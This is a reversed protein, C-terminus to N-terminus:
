RRPEVAQGAADTEIPETIIPLTFVFCAGPLHCGDTVWIEGGHAETARKCYTLGIGTHKYKGRRKDQDQGQAFKNFIVSRQDIPVGDGDDSVRVIVMRQDDSRRVEVHVQSRSYEIGNSVLNIVIRQVKEGDIYMDPINPEIDLDININIDNAMYILDDCAKNVLEEISHAKDLTLTMQEREVDLLTNILNLLRNSGNYALGLVEPLYNTVDEEGVLDQAFRLGAIVSGLPSRLDHVLMLIIEDRYRALENEETVDRFVVLNGSIQRQSGRVVLRTQEVYLTKEGRELKLQKREIVDERNVPNKAREMMGLPMQNGSLVELQAPVDSFPRNMYPKLDIGLLTEASSNFDIIEDQRNLLVMGDQTSDLITRMRNSASQIKENLLANELHGAAQDALLDLAELDRKAFQHDRHFALLIVQRIHRGRVIPVVLKTQNTENITLVERKEVAQMAMDYKIQPPVLTTMQGGSAAPDRWPSAIMALRKRSTNVEFIVANVANLMQIATNLVESAVTFRDPSSVVKLSLQRLHTLTEVQYQREEVYRANALSIVVHAALNQLFNAEEETFYGRQQNEVGIVGFTQYDEVLPVALVSPYRGFLPTKMTDSSLGYAASLVVQQSEMVEAIYGTLETVVKDERELGEQLGNQRILRYKGNPTQQVLVVTDAGTVRLTTELINNIISEIDLSSSVQQVLSEIYSLEELRRVLAERTANYMQSNQIQAATLNAATEMFQWERDTFERHTKSGLLIMGFVAENASMPAVVLTEENNKMMMQRTGTSLSPTNLHITVRPNAYSHMLLAELEPYLSLTKRNLIHTENPTTGLVLLIDNGQYVGQTVVLTASDASFMQRLTYTTNRAVEQPQLSSLSIRSLHVLQAMESAYMELAQLLRGNEMSVTIQSALVELMELERHTHNYPEQHYVSLIGGVLKNSVLPIQAIARFGGQEARQVLDPSATEANIDAVILAEFPEDLPLLNVAKRYVEPLNIDHVIRIEGHERNFMFVAARDAEAITMATRCITHLTDENDLNFLLNQVSANILSLHDIQKTHQYYRWANDIPQAVQSAITTVLAQDAATFAPESTQAKVIGILGSVQDNRTLPALMLAKSDLGNVPLSLKPPSLTNPAVIIPSREAFLQQEMSGDRLLHYRRSTHKDARSDGVYYLMDDHLIAIFASDANCKAVIQELVSQVIEDLDLSNFETMASSALSTSPPANQVDVPPSSVSDFELWWEMIANLALAILVVSMTSIWEAGSIVRESAILPEWRTFYLGIWLVVLAVAGSTYQRAIETQFAQSRVSRWGAAIFGGVIVMLAANATGLALGIIAIIVSRSFGTSQGTLETILWCIVGLGLLALSSVTMSPFNFVQFILAILPMLSLILHTYKQRMRHKPTTTAKGM